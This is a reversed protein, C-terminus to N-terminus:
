KITRAVRFGNYSLAKDPEEGMRRASRCTVGYGYWSGGRIVRKGFKVESEVPDTQDESSLSETFYDWVWENANGHVDYLGWGNPKFSGVAM